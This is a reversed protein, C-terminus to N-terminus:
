QRTAEGAPSVPRGAQGQPSGESPFTPSCPAQSARPRSLGETRRLGRIQRVLAVGVGNPRAACLRMVDPRRATGNAVAEILASVPKQAPAGASESADRSGLLGAAATALAAFQADNLGRGGFTVQGAQADFAVTAQILPDHPM